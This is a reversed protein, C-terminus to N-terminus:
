RKRTRSLCETCCHDTIEATAGYALVVHGRGADPDHGFGFSVLAALRASQCALLAANTVHRAQRVSLPRFLTKPGKVTSHYRCIGGAGCRIVRCTV